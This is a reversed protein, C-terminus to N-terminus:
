LREKEEQILAKVEKKLRNRERTIVADVSHCEPNECWDEYLAKELPGRNCEFIKHREDKLIHSESLRELLQQQSHSVIEGIRRRAESKPISGAKTMDRVLTGLLEENM